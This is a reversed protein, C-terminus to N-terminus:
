ECEGRTRLIAEDRCCESWDAAQGYKFEAGPETFRRDPKRCLARADNGRIQATAHKTEHLPHGRQMARHDFGNLHVAGREGERIGANIDDIARINQMVDIRRLAEFFHM